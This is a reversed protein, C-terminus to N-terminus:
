RSAHSRARGSFQLQPVSTDSLRATRRADGVRIWFLIQGARVANRFIFRMGSCSGVALLMRSDHAGSDIRDLLCDALPGSTCAILASGEAFPLAAVAVPEQNPAVITKGAFLRQLAVCNFSDLVFGRARLDHLGEGLQQWGDFTGVAFHLKPPEAVPIGAHPVTSLLPEATNQVPIMVTQHLDFNRM